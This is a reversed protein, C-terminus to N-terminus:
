GEKYLECAENTVKIKLLGNFTRNSKRVGCYQIISGDCHWRQRNACTRCTKDPKKPEIFGYGDFMDKTDM